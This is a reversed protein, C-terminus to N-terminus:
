RRAKPCPSISIPPPACPPEEQALPMALAAARAFRSLQANGPALCLRDGSSGNIGTGGLSNCLADARRQWGAQRYAPTTGAATTRVRPFGSGNAHEMRAIDSEVAAKLADHDPTEKLAEYVFVRRAQDFRQKVAAMESQGQSDLYGTFSQYEAAISLLEAYDRAMYAGGGLVGRRGAMASPGPGNGQVAPGDPGRRDAPGQRCQDRRAHQPLPKAWRPARAEIGLERLWRGQPVTGLWRAGRSQAIPALTAFDVHATLDAEGPNVFPDVKLHDRVAQLTSGDRLRDHGYDIFLAAGGQEM